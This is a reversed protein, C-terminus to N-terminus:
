ELARRLIGVPDGEVGPIREFQTGSAGDLVAIGAETLADRLADARAWNKDQRAQARAGLVSEVLGALESDEALGAKEVRELDGPQFMGLIRGLDRLLRLTQERDTGSQGNALTAMRFLAAVAEGTNFDEDMSSAFESRLAQLEAGVPRSLVEAPDLATTDQMLDGLLRYLRVLGTRAADLASPEFDVPRRYPSRVLFFRVAPAGYTDLLYRANFQKSFEPDKMRADSKGIKRGSFQVLGHHMWIKAFADGHAESQAIENEHHPFKLDDGGGHIDFVPGMLESAMVSCEIHWGPRGPGFPSPWAPEGPKANKWLVFDAPNELGAQAEIRAGSQTDELKRGSLKGYGPQLSVRYYVGDAAQYARGADILEGIFRVMEDVYHTCHPHDTISEVGLDRMFQLYQATYHESVENWLQGTAQAKHIIKDDIDTINVVLRVAYGRARFWRAITDFVVPGMLHGVHCDDYVTPGCLYMSVKGPELPVFEQTERTLTDHIRISM